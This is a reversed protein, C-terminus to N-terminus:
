FRVRLGAQVTRGPEPYGDAMWYYRDMLNMVSCEFDTQRTLALTARFDVTGLGDVDIYSGAENQTRRGTEFSVIGSLNLRPVPSVTVGIMGKHRPTDVLPTSPDSLNARDLYGYNFSLDTRPLSRNRVDMEVGMVRAEGINRNQTLNPELYFRQILNEIRSYFLSAQFSTRGRAGQYGTELTLANEPALDPNPVATGLKYSYRDKISPLRTKRALTVRMTGGAPTSYFLGAQPNLGSTSGQRLDILMDDQYDEARDTTQVDVSLGAVASVRSSLALTDEIGLSFIRGQFRKEPEGSNNDRHADTKFHGAARLTQGGVTTGWEVSGGWTHDHYYSRFSSGRNQTTFTNDDYAFLANEYTDYFARGRLYGARGLNTNSVFYVSDKDWFPWRWYRVRVNPDSGAYPPNGKRGRQGVYSVAYEGGASPVFGLKVNFRADRRTANVRDGAPQTKAPEFSGALPFTDAQLWSGGGQVYWAGLNSGGNVFGQRMGGSGASAGASTEFRASPRRSVVNIAGGLANPGHLASVFGKSIRVEAVDYTTFRDLDVYGDYPTYVPIGDIFLPVQRLDFGRIYVSAENRQGIRTFTVGPALSAAEALTVSGSAAIDRSDILSAGVPAVDATPTLGASATVAVDIRGLYFAGQGGGILAAIRALTARLRGAEAALDEPANRGSGPEPWITSDERAVPHGALWTEMAIRVRQLAEAASELTRADGAASKGLLAEAREIERRWEPVAQAPAERATGVAFAAVLMSVVLVFSRKSARTKM